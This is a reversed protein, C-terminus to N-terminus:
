KRSFPMHRAIWDQHKYALCLGAIMVIAAAIIGLSIGLAVRFDDGNKVSGCGRLSFQTSNRSVENVATCFYVSELSTDNSVNLMHGVSEFHNPGTWQLDAQVPPNLSCKLMKQGPSPLECTVKPVPVPDMVHVNFDLNHLKGDMQIESQYPGSRKKDLKLLTLVGTDNNLHAQDQFKYWRYESPELEVVKNGQYKWLITQLKGKVKPVLPCDDGTEVDVNIPVDRTWFRHIIRLDSLKEHERHQPPRLAADWRFTWELGSHKEWGSRITRVKVKYPESLVGYQEQSSGHLATNCERLSFETSQQSVENGATCIYVTEPSQEKSITIREGTFVLGNPGSWKFDAQVSSGVSCLLTATTSNADCTVEPVPVPDMVVVNFESNHLKGDVQIESQYLGCRDKDLKLLTLVGTDNNLHAQDKFRYWRYETPELEVVKYGQYKWLITQLKGKVNPDLSRDEGTKVYVDGSCVPGTNCERLSFQTSQRSVENGATCIYVTEPSQENSITIREGTFVFDNPGSWKFDAQVSSGVMVHVNFDSNHLKGDVQIESQYLGSRDKDLKLLTLVGTDNNLHAQDKFKYWRYETPELEVVKYGQYKWLITQLKGKVHPDLSRDDGTKVYVDGCFVPGKESDDKGGHTSIKCPAGSWPLSVTMKDKKWKQIIAEVTSNATDITRYGVWAKHLDVIKDRTDKSLKKTKAMTSLNSHSQSLTHAPTNRVSGTHSPNPELLRINWNLLASRSSCCDCHCHLVGYSTCRHCFKSFLFANGTNCEKLSFATSQRSVENGATCIYVTEPSQEKSITIREGTFDFYNPGSWKFDAQVSSGVSCLLTATTSNADCTVEPAPVPNNRFTWDVKQHSMNRHLVSQNDDVTFMWDKNLFANGTDCEKLFFETSQRSVKNGATCIYVTEPSQENSITIREGTFYYGNPGSWKFDAQVSSGVSCLLTATTSNADCTVEPVPVPDMVHVNFDSNHLKGDVQM